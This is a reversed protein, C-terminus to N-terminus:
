GPHLHTNVPFLQLLVKGTISINQVKIQTTTIQICASTFSERATCKLDTCKAAHLNYRLQSSVCLSSLSALCLCTLGPLVKPVVTFIYSKKRFSILLWQCTRLLDSIHDSKVRSPIHQRCHSCCITTLNAWSPPPLYCSCLQCHRPSPPSPASLWLLTCIRPLSQPDLPGRKINSQVPLWLSPDSDASVKAQAGPLVFSGIVPM